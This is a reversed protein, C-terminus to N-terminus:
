GAVATYVGSGAATGGVIAAIQTDLAAKNTIGLKVFVYISMVRKGSTIQGQPVNAGMDIDFSFLHEDYTAGQEANPNIQKVQDYTGVPEVYPTTTAVVANGANTVTNFDVLADTGTLTIVGTGTNVTATVFSSLNATLLDKIAQSVDAVTNLTSGTPGVMLRVIETETYKTNTVLDIPVKNAIANGLKLIKVEITQGAVPASITVTQVTPTGAAYARKKYGGQPLMRKLPIVNSMGAFAANGNAITADAAGATAAIVLSDLIPYKSKKM